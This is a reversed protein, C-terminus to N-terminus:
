DAARLIWSRGIMELKTRPREEDDNLPNELWQKMASCMRDRSEVTGITFGMQREEDDGTAPDPLTIQLAYQEGEKGQWNTTVRAIASITFAVGNEAIIKKEEATLWAGTGEEYTDYFGM